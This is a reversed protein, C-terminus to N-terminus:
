VDEKEVIRDVTVGLVADPDSITRSAQNINRLVQREADSMASEKLYEEHKRIYETIVPDEHFVYKGLSVRRSMRPKEFWTGSENEPIPSSYDREPPFDPMEIVPGHGASSEIFELESDEEYALTALKVQRVEKVKLQKKVFKLEDDSLRHFHMMTQLFRWKGHSKYIIGYSNKDKTIKIM